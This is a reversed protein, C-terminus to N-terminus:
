LKWRNAVSARDIGNGFRKSWRTSIWKLVGCPRDSGGGSGPLLGFWPFLGQPIDEDTSEMGAFFFGGDDSDRIPLSEIEVEGLV